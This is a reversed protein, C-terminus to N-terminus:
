KRWVLGRSVLNLWIQMLWLTEAHTVARLTFTLSARLTPRHRRLLWPVTSGDFASPPCYKHSLSGSSTLKSYSSTTSRVSANMAESGRPKLSSCPKKALLCFMWWLRDWVSWVQGVRWLFVFKHLCPPLLISSGVAVVTTQEFCLRNIGVCVFTFPSLEGKCSFFVPLTELSASGVKIGSDPATRLQSGRHSEVTVSVQQGNVRCHYLRLCRFRSRRDGESPESPGPLHLGSQQSAETNLFAAHFTISLAGKRLRDCWMSDSIIIEQTAKERAREWSKLKLVFM